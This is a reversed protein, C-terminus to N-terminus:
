GKRHWGAASAQGSNWPGFDTASAAQQFLKPALEGFYSPWVPWNHSGDSLHWEHQLYLTAFRADPQQEYGPPAYVVLERMPKIAPNGPDIMTLGDVQFSYEYVGPEIPGMTVSWVGNSDKAMPARGNAWQGAVIVEAAKPARLRFTVQRDAQVEPSRVPPAFAPRRAPAAANTSPQGSVPPEAGLGAVAASLSIFVLSLNLKM